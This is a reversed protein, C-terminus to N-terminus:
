PGTVLGYLPQAFLTGIPVGGPLAAVTCWAVCTRAVRWGQADVRLGNRVEKCEGYLNILIFLIM